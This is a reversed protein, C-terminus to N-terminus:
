EVCNLFIGFKPSWSVLLASFSPFLTDTCNSYFSHIETQGSYKSISKPVKLLYRLLLNFLRSHHNKLCIIIYCRRKEKDFNLLDRLGCFPAPISYNERFLLIILLISENKGMICNLLPMKSCYTKFHGILSWSFLDIAM